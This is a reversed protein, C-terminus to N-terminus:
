AEDLSYYCANGMNMRRKIEERTDNTNIVTVGLYKFTEVNEFSLNGNVTNQNHVVNQHRCTIMYKTKKSNVEVGIDM